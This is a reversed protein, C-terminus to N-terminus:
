ISGEAEYFCDDGCYGQFDDSGFFGQMVGRQGRGRYGEGCDKYTTECHLCRSLSYPVRYLNRFNELERCRFFFFFFFNDASMMMTKINLWVYSLFFLSLATILWVTVSIFSVTWGGFTLREASVIWAWLATSAGAPSPLPALQLMVMKFYCCICAEQINLPQDVTAVIFPCIFFMLLHCDVNVIFLLAGWVFYIMATKHPKDIRRRKRQQIEMVSRSLNIVYFCMLVTYWTENCSSIFVLLWVLQLPM